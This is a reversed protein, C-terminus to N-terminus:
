GEAIAIYRHVKASESLATGLTLGKSDGGRTGEYATIGNSGVGAAAAAVTLATAATMGNFWEWKADGDTVNWIQIWDPVFGLELNIAAGTGTYTGVKVHGQKM